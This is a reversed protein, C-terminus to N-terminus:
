DEVTRWASLWGLWRGGGEVLGCRRAGGDGNVMMMVKPWGLGGCGCSSGGDFIRRGRLVVMRAGGDGNVMMMVKPWGLGGCGCGSGGDFIRRGRLVVM